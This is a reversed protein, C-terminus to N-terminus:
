TSSPPPSNKKLVLNIADLMEHTQFPKWLMVGKVSRIFDDIKKDGKHGTMFIFRKSLQPKVREVAIYFKDGPLQPMMMDCLIVDFDQVMVKKLGDVGNKVCVVRFGNQELFGKLIDTLDSEDDLLLISKFQDHDGGIDHVKEPPPTFPKNQM